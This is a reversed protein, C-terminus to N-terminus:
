AVTEDEHPEELSAVKWLGRSVWVIREIWTALIHLFQYLKHLVHIWPRPRLAPYRWALLFRLLWGALRGDRRSVERCLLSARLRGQITWVKQCTELPVYYSDNDTNFSCLFRVHLHTEEPTHFGQFCLACFSIGCECTLAACGDFDVFRWGCAPCRLAQAEDSLADLLGSQVVEMVPPRRVQHQLQNFHNMCRDFSERDLDNQLDLRGRGCPCPPPMARGNDLHTKLYVGACDPCMAHRQSCGEVRRAEFGDDQCVICKPFCEPCKRDSPRIEETDLTNKYRQLVACGGDARCRHLIRGHLARRYVTIPMKRAFLFTYADYQCM